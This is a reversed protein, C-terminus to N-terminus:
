FNFEKNCAEIFMVQLGGCIYSFPFSLTTLRAKFGAVDSVREFFIWKFAGLGVSFFSLRSDMPAM